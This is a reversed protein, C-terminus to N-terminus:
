DARRFAYVQVRNPKGEDTIWWGNTFEDNIKGFGYYVYGYSKDQVVHGSLAAEAIRMADDFDHAKSVAFLEGIEDRFLMQDFKEM